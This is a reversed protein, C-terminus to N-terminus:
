FDLPDSICLISFSIRARRVTTRNKATREPTEATAVATKGAITWAYTSMPFSL